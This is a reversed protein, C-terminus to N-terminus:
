DTVSNSARHSFPPHLSLPGSTRLLNFGCRWADVARTIEGLTAYVEAAEGWVMALRRLDRDDKRLAAVAEDCRVIAESERGGMALAAAALVLAQAQHAVPTTELLALARETSQMAASADGVVLACRALEQHCHAAESVRRGREYIEAARRLDREADQVNEEDAWLLATGHLALAEGLVAENNGRVLLDLAQRTLGVAENTRGADRAAQGAARYARALQQPDQLVEAEAIATVTLRRARTTDGRQLYARVLECMIAIGAATPVAGQDRLENLAKEGLDVAHDADGLEIECRCLSSVINWRTPAKDHALDADKFLDSYIDLAEDFRELRELSRAEGWAALLAQESRAAGAALRRVEAFRELASVLEGEALCWEAEALALDVSAEAEADAAPYIEAPACGLRAAIRNVARQSPMRKGAEILSIYSASLEPGALDVQSLGRETRLHRLRAGITRAM